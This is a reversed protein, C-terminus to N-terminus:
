TAGLVLHIGFLVLSASLDNRFSDLLIQVQARHQDVGFTRLYVPDSVLHFITVLNLLGFLVIATFVLRFWAALLSLSRNVPALLFYFAWAIVLDNIFTILYCAIAALFLRGHVAINQITQDIHGPIVLKPMISFEATTFPSLVYFAGAILAAQRLTIESDRDPTM